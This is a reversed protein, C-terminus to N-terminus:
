GYYTGYWAELMETLDLVARDYDGKAFPKEMYRDLYDASDWDTFDRTLGNGTLLYYNDGMIDLAVLMDYSGLGMQEAQEWAYSYLDDGGYECTIVGIITDYERLLRSNRENLTRRTSSSLVGADDWVYSDSAAPANPPEPHPAKPARAYSIGIAAVIMVITLVWAVAQNKLLKM